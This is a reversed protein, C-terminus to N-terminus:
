DECEEDLTVLPLDIVHLLTESLDLNAIGPLGLINLM